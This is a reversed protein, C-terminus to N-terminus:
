GLLLSFIIIFMNKGVYLANGKAAKGRTAQSSGEKGWTIHIHQPSTLTRSALLILHMHVGDQEELGEM